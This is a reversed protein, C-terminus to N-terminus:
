SHRLARVILLLIVAGVVAVVFSIPHIGAEVAFPNGTLFRVVAGGIFAGIVGIIINMACGESEGVLKSALWGALAGFFVWVVVDIITGM